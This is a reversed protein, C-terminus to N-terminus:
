SLTARMARRATWCGNTAQLRRTSQERALFTGGADPHDPRIFLIAHAFFASWISVSPPPNAHNYPEKGIHWDEKSLKSGSFYNMHRVVEITSLDKTSM